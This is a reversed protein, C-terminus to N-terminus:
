RSTRRGAVGSVEIDGGTVAAVVAWSGGRHLRGVPSPQRRGADVGGDIRITSTGAGTVARWTRSSLECLEVVHPECAAHRIESMGQAAAAALIATETGTVSAEFLYISTPSCGTRRRSTIGSALCSERAWRRWRRSIPRFRVARPFTAARPRWGHAHRATGAASRPAAGIGELPRGPGPDPEDKVVGSLARPVHDHRHRRSGRRSRRAAAGHGRCRSHAAHQDARM